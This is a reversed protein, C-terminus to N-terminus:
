DTRTTENGCYTLSAVFMGKLLIFFYSGLFLLVELLGDHSRELGGHNEANHRSGGYQLLVIVSKM